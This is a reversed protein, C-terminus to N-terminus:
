ICSSSHSSTACAHSRAYRVTPELDCLTPDHHASSTLSDHLYMRNLGCVVFRRHPSVCKFATAERLRWGVEDEVWLTQVCSYSKRLDWVKVVGGSDATVIEPSDPVAQVGILPASHGKLRCIEARMLVLPFRPILVDSCFVFNTKIELLCAFM